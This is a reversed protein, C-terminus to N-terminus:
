HQDEVIDEESAFPFFKVGYGVLLTLSSILGCELHQWITLAHTRMARGGFTVILIQGLVTILQIVIYIPNNFIHEFVNKESKKLNKANLSNFVQMYVFINFFITFHYGNVYNWVSHRLDRDSPVGFMVDGYFLIVTLIIIQFVSQSVVNIMMTTTIISCGKKFPKRELLSDTPPETALALSAFSEMILNVWLMQIANLPADKCAIGGLLTM